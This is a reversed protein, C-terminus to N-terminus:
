QHGRPRPIPEAKMALASAIMRQRVNDLGAVYILNGHYPNGPITKREYDLAGDCGQSSKVEDVWARAVRAAGHASNKIDGLTVKVAEADDEWNISAEKGGGDEDSRKGDPVFAVLSVKGQVICDKTRLGRLLTAPVGSLAAPDAGPGM